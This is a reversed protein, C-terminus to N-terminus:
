KQFGLRAASQLPTERNPRAGSANLKGADPLIKIVDPHDHVLLGAVSPSSFADSGIRACNRYKM